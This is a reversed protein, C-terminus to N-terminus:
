RFFQMPNVAKHQYYSRWQRSGDDERIEFHLHAGKANGTAGVKGIAQGRSVSDGKNVLNVSNHLYLTWYAGHQIIIYNGQASGWGSYFVTGSDAALVNTGHDIHIDIASHGPRFGNYIIGEGQVPWIFSGSGGGSGGSAPLEKVGVREVQKVPEKLITEEITIRELELGNERVIHFVVEMMGQQGPIDIETQNVFLNYDEIHEVQFPIAEIVTLEELTKVHIRIESEEARGRVKGTALAEADGGAEIIQLDNLHSSFLPSRQDSSALLVAEFRPNNLHDNATLLVLVEEASFLSELAVKCEELEIEEVITAEFVTGADDSSSVNSYSNILTELVKDLESKSAVAVLPKGDVKILYASALFSIKQRIQNCVATPDPESGFRLERNFTIREEPQLEAGYLDGCSVVLYDVFCEIESADSVIGLEIDDLYVVYVQSSIYQNLWLLAPLLFVSCGIFFFIGKNIPRM